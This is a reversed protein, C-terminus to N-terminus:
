AGLLACVMQYFAANLSRCEDLYDSPAREAASIKDCWDHEACFQAVPKLGHFRTSFAKYIVVKRGLLLAWYAGHYSNTIVTEGSALFDLVAHFENPRKRNNLVPWKPAGNLTVAGLRQEYIVAEYRPASKIQDFAPHCCSVCPVYPFPTGQDRVGILDFGDL